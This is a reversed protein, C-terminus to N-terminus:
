PGTRMVDVAVETMDEANHADNERAIRFVINALRTRAAEIEGPDTGQEAAIQEWAADFAKYAVALREPSLSALDIERASMPEIYAIPFSKILQV